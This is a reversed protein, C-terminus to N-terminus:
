HREQDELRWLDQTFPAPTRPRQQRGYINRRFEAQSVFEELTRQSDLNVNKGGMGKNGGDEGTPAAKPIGRVATLFEM